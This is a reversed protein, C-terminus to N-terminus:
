FTSAILAIAVLVFPLAMVIWFLTMRRTAMRRFRADPSTLSGIINWNRAMSGEFSYPSGERGADYDIGPRRPPEGHLQRARPYGRWRSKGSM